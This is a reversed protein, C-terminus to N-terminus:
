ATASAVPNANKKLDPPVGRARGLKRYALRGYPAGLDIADAYIEICGEVVIDREQRSGATGLRM